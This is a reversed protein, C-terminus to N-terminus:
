NENEPTWRWGAAVEDLLRRADPGEATLTWLSDGQRAVLRAKERSSIVRAARGDLRAPSAGAAPAIAALRGALAAVPDARIAELAVEVRRAGGDAAVSVITADPYVADLKGFAFGRPKRLSFGLWSNRYTDGAIAYSPAGAPVDVTRGRLRYSLITVDVTGYTQLGAGTAAALNDELTYSGFQFRAADAIGPTYAAADLPLWQREVLIETWAHGGWIGDTYVYGMAVRSPIGAARELAALLVAFAICTGRRNRVVESAPALAVGLDLEAHAAVWDQLKRAAALPDRRGADDGGVVERALAAVAPDDSQLIANPALYRAAESASDAPAKSDQSAASVARDQSAASATSDQSAASAVTDASAPPAASDAAPTASDAPAPADPRRVELVVTDPTRALVHQAPGEFAPWGLDPRRHTLRLQIAEIARPDPLRINSRAMTRDYAESPLEGGTAARLAAARDAPRTLMEGIPSADSRQLMRGASDLWVEAKGPLGETEETVVVAPQGDLRRAAVVTRTVRVVGGSAPSFIAFALQDHVAMLKERSLRAVGQPGPIPGSVPVLRTYTKDGARTRLELGEATRRGDVFTSQRSSSTETHVATLQGGADEVTEVRTRIEVRSGLRNVVFLMEETTATAAGTGGAGPAAEISEHFFGTPQGALRIEWWREAPTSPAAVAAPPAGPAAAMGAATGVATTGAAGPPVAGTSAAPAAPAAARQKAAQSAAGAPAAPAAASTVFTAVTAGMVIAAASVALLRSKQKGREIERTTKM